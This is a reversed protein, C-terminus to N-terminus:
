PPAKNHRRLTPRMGIPDALPTSDSRCKPDTSLLKKKNHSSITNGLNTSSRQRRTSSPVGRMSRAAEEHPMVAQYGLYPCKRQQEPYLRRRRAHCGRCLANILVACSSSPSSSVVFSSPSSVVFSSSLAALSFFAIARLMAAPDTVLVVYDYLQYRGEVTTAM